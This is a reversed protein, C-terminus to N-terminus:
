TSRNVIRGQNHQPQRYGNMASLGNHLKSKESAIYSKVRKAKTTIRKNIILIEALIQRRMEILLRLTGSPEPPVNMMLLQDTKTTELQLNTLIGSLEQVREPAATSIERDIIHLTELMRSYQELSVSFDSEVGEVTSIGHSNM